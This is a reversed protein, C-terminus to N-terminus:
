RWKRALKKLLEVALTVSLAMLDYTGTTIVLSSVVFYVRRKITEVM